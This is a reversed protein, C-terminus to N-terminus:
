YAPTCCFEWWERKKWESAQSHDDNMILLHKGM